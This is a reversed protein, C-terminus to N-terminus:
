IFCEAGRIIDIISQTIYRFNERFEKDNTKFYLISKAKELVKPKETNPITKFEVIRDIRDTPIIAKRITGDVEDVFDVVLFQIEM